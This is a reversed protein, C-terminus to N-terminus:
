RIMKVSEKYILEEKLPLIFV